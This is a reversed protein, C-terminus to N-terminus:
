IPPRRRTPERTLHSDSREPLLPPSRRELRPTLNRLPSPPWPASEAGGQPQRPAQGPKSVWPILKRLDLVRSIWDRDSEEAALRLDRFGYRYGAKPDSYRVLAFRPCTREYPDWVPHTAPAHCQYCAFRPYHYQGEVLYAVLASGYGTEEAPLIREAIRIFSAYPDGSIRGDPLFAAHDWREDRVASRYNFAEASAVAFLYGIGPESEVMFAHGAGATSIQYTRGPRLYNEEWPHEPYLVSLRGETDARFVTVYAERDTRIYVEVPTRRLLSREGNAPPDLRISVAPPLDQAALTGLFFLTTGALM